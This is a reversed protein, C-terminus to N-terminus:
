QFQSLQWKLLPHPLRRQPSPPYSVTLSLHDPQIKLGEGASTIRGAGSMAKVVVMVKMVVVAVVLIVGAVVVIM